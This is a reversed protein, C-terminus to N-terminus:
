NLNSMSLDPSIQTVIGTFIILFLSQFDTFCLFHFFHVHNPNKERLNQKSQLLIFVYTPFIHNKTWWIAYIVKILM